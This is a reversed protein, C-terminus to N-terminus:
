IVCPRVVKSRRLYNMGYSPEVTLESLKKLFYGKPLPFALKKALNRLNFINSMRTPPLGHLIKFVVKAKNKASQEALSMWGLAQM